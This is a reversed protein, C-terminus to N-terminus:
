PAPAVRWPYDAIEAARLAVDVSQVFATMSRSPDPEDVDFHHEFEVALGPHMTELATCGSQCSFLLGGADAGAPGTKGSGFWAGGRAEPAPHLCTLWSAQADLAASDSNAPAHSLRVSDGARGAARKVDSRVHLLAALAQGDFRMSSRQMPNGPCGEPADPDLPKPLPPEADDIGQGAVFASPFHADSGFPPSAPLAFAARGLAVYIRQNGADAKGCSHPNSRGVSPAALAVGSLQVAMFAALVWSALASKATGKM